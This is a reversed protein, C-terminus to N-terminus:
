FDIDIDIQFYTLQIWGEDCRASLQQILLVAPIEQLPVHIEPRRM